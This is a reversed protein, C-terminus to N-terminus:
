RICIIKAYNYLKFFTNKIIIILSIISIIYVTITFFFPPLPSAVM